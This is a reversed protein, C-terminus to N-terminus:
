DRQKVEGEVKNAWPYLETGRAAERLAPDESYAGRMGPPLLEATSRMIKYGIEDLQERHKRGSRSATFPGFPKGIRITM